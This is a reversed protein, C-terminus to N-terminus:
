ENEADHNKKKSLKINPSSINSDQVDENSVSSLTLQSVISKAADHNNTIFNQLGAM